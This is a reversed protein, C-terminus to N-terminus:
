KWFSGFFGAWHIAHLVLCAFAGAAWDDAMIGLGTPLRELQRAPPPKSIDFIRHLVFGVALIIPRSMVANPVFFFVIPMSAIEDLVISGPDKRGGMRRVAATCIPVGVICIIATVAIQLWPSAIRHIAWALPLGVLAGWTGPAWPIRGTWFGTALIVSPASWPINVRNASETEM